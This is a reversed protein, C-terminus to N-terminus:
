KKKEKFLKEILEETEKNGAGASKALERVGMKLANESVTSIISSAGSKLGKGVAEKVFTKAKEGKSANAKQQKSVREALRGETDLRTLMDNIEQNSFKDVDKLMASIDKSKIIEEKSKQVKQEEARKEARAKRAKKLSKVRNKYQKRAKRKSTGSGKKLRKGTSVSSDLPYPPGNKRGWHMGLIGHHELYEDSLEPKDYDYEYLKIQQDEM